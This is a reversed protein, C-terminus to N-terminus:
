GRGQKADGAEENETEVLSRLDEKVLHKYGMTTKIDSHGMAEQVKVVSKGDALWTTVRRHRLDHRRFRKPLKAQEAALDWGTKLDHIRDGARYVRGRSRVHHFVWPSRRGDYAAFHFAAFHERMAQRLRPTMPVWRGKGEIQSSIVAEKRVFAYVFWDLSPVMRGAANLGALKSEAAQLRAALNGGLNLKPRSPPLPNPIFARIDEGTVSTSRYTGTSRAM